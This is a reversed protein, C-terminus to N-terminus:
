GSLVSVCNLARLVRCVRLALELRETFEEHMGIRTNHCISGVCPVLLVVRWLDDCADLRNRRVFPVRAFDTLPPTFFLVSASHMARVQM